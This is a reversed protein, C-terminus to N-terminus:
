RSGTLVLRHREKMAQACRASRSAGRGVVTVPIVASEPPGLLHIPQQTLTTVDHEIEGTSDGFPSVFPHIRVASRGVWRLTAASRKFGEITSFSLSESTHGVVTGGSREQIEVSVRGYGDDALRFTARARFCRGPSAKWASSWTFALGSEITHRYAADLVAPDWGRASALRLLCRHVVELVLMARAQPALVSIGPPLSVVAFEGDSQPDVYVEGLVDARATDPHAFLRVSSTRSRVGGLALLESYRECVRRATKVFTDVDPTDAWPGGPFGTKPWFEVTRLVAM